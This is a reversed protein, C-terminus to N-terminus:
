GIQLWFSGGHREVDVLNPHEWIPAMLSALQKDESIFYNPLLTHYRVPNALIFAALMYQENYFRDCMFQPYDYPLYIDHIHVVVGTKLRPLIELFFIMADSNPFVRHSNDIFLIDNAELKEFIFHNNALEEFPTRMVKDALHDISARPYPDISTIETSLGFDRTAKRAVKTSNGSGVEIYRKPKFEHMMGYIGIIDLGPLFDNNWSPENENPEDAKRKIQQINNKLLMFNRLLNAYADRGKDILEYLRGHPPLGHGYRPKSNVKYDLHISQFKPSIFRYLSKIQEKM